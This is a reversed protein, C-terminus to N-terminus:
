RGLHYFGAPIRPKLGLQFMGEPDRVLDQLFVGNMLYRPMDGQLSVMGEDTIGRGALICIVVCIITIALGTQVKSPVGRRWPPFPFM